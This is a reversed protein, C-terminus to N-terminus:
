KVFWEFMEKPSDFVFMEAEHHIRFFIEWEEITKTDVGFADYGNGREWSNFCRALYKKSNYKLPVLTVKTDQYQFGIVPMETDLVSQLTVTKETTNIVKKM